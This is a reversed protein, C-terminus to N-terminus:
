TQTPATLWPSNSSGCRRNHGLVRSDAMEAMEDAERERGDAPSNVSLSSRSGPRDLHTPLVFSGRRLGATTVIAVRKQSLSPAASAPTGGFDFVEVGKVGGRVIADSSM